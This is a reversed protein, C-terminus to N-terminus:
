RSQPPHTRAPMAGRAPDANTQPNRELDEVSAARREYERALARHAGRKGHDTEADATRHEESARRRYQEISPSVFTGPNPVIAHM